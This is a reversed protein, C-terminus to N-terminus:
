IHILSLLLAERLALHRSSVDEDRYLVVSTGFDPHFRVVWAVDHRQPDTTFAEWGGDSTPDERGWMGEGAGRGVAEVAHRDEIPIHRDDVFPLEPIPHDTRLGNAIPRESSLIM